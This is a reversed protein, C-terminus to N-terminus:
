KVQALIEQIHQRVTASQTKALIDRLFPIAAEGFSSRMANVVGSAERGAEDDAPLANLYDALRPLDKPDKQWTIVALAQGTGTHRAVLSWLLDHAQATHVAGLVVILENTMNADAHGLNGTVSSVVRQEVRLRLVPDITNREDLAAGAARIAGQFLIPDDSFLYDIAAQAMEAVHPRLRDVVVSSPGNAKLSMLLRPEVVADPWYYLANMAYARVRPSAHYLYELMVGLTEDDRVALLNPLFDTLLEEQQRPHAGIPTRPGAPLVQIATWASQMRIDGAPRGFFGYHSLRVDYVGPEAFSYQLHLPLRNGDAAYGPCAPGSYGMGGRPPTIPILLKGDKRVEFSDCAFDGAMTLPPYSVRGHPLEVHIWVPGGVRAVGDLSIVAVEPARRVVVPESRVGGSVVVLKSVAAGAADPMQVNIQEDSTFQVELPAEDLLVQVGCVETAPGKCGAKPGFNHGWVSFRIGPELLGFRASDSRVVGNANITPQAALLPWALLILGYIRL